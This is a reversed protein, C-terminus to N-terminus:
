ISHRRALRSAMATAEAPHVVATPTAAMMTGRNPVEYVTHLASMMVSRGDIPIEIPQAVYGIVPYPANTNVHDVWPFGQNVRLTETRRVVENLGCDAPAIELRACPSSPGGLPQVERQLSREPVKSIVNTFWAHKLVKEAPLRQAPDARLLGLILSKALDDFVVNTEQMNEANIADMQLELHRKLWSQLSDVSHLGRHKMRSMISLIGESGFPVLSGGHGALMAFLVVGAAWMDGHPTYVARSVPCNATEPPSYAACTKERPGFLTRSAGLTRMFRGPLLTAVALSTDEDSCELSIADLSVSCHVINRRHISDLDRVICYFMAKVEDASLRKGRSSKLLQKLPILSIEAASDPCPSSALPFTDSVAPTSPGATNAKQPSPSALSEVSISKWLSDEFISHGSEDTDEMDLSCQDPRAAGLTLSMPTGINMQWNSEEDAAADFLAQLNRRALPKGRKSPRCPQSDVKQNQGQGQGQAVQFVPFVPDKPHWPRSLEGSLAATRERPRVGISRQQFPAPAGGPPLGDREKDLQSPLSTRVRNRASACAAHRDFNKMTRHKYNDMNSEFM